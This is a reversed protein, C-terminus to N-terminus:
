KLLLYFDIFYIFVFYSLPHVKLLAETAGHLEPPKRVAAQPFFLSIGLPSPDRELVRIPLDGPAM